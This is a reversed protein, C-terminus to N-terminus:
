SASPKRWSMVKAAGRRAWRREAPATKDSKALAMQEELARRDKLAEAVVGAVGAVAADISVEDPRESGGSRPEKALESVDGIIHVGTGPLGEAFGTGIEAAKRAAWKPTQLKAEDAEPRRNEVMNMVVGRRVISSFEAWNMTGALQKNLRRIMEAEAATMSRNQVLGQRDALLDHPLGLLYEFSNFIFNRDGDPVVVAYTRDAGVISAWRQVQQVQDYRWWFKKARDNPEEALIQKLWQNYTLQMGSKVHQQWASPMIAGIMRLTVVVRVRQPGGLDDIFAAAVEPQVDDLFESSIISKGPLKLERRMRKWHKKPHYIAGNDRWGYPRGTGSLVAKHHYTGTGPYRVDHEALLPRSDALANQLATTGTKHLGVHLLVEGDQVPPISADMLCWDLDDPDTSERGGGASAAASVTCAPM